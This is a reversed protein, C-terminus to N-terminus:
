AGTARLALRLDTIPSAGLITSLSGTGVTSGDPLVITANITLPSGQGAQSALQVPPLMAQEISVPVPKTPPVQPITTFEIPEATAQGADKLKEALDEARKAQELPIRELVDRAAAKQEESTAQSALVRQARALERAEERRAKRDEIAALQADIAARRQRDHEETIQEELDRIQKLLQLREVEPLDGAALRERYVALREENTLLDDQADQLREAAREAEAAAREAERQAKAEAAAEAKAASAGSAAAKKSAQASKKAGAAAAKAAEEALKARARQQDNLAREGAAMGGPATARAGLNREGARYDEMAAQRVQDYANALALQAAVLEYTVGIQAAYKQATAVSVDGAAIMKAVVADLKAQLEDKAQTQLRTQAEELVAAETEVRLAEAAETAAQTAAQTASTYGLTAFEATAAANAELRHAAEREYIRETLIQAATATEAYVGQGAYYAAIENRVADENAQSGEAAALLHPLLAQLAAGREGTATTVLTEITSLEDLHTLFDTLAVTAPELGAALGTGLTTKLTSFATGLREYSKATTDNAAAVFAATYGQEDLLQLLGQLRQQASVGEGALAAVAKRDLEFREALSLAAEAGSASLFERLALTAGEVGQAPDAASLRRVADSITDIAAGTRNSLNVFSGLAGLNEELTGGYTQQQHQAKALIDNYRDTSGSLARVRAETVELANAATVAESAFGVVAQAGFAVGFAGAMSSALGTVSRLSSGLGGTAQTLERTAAASGRLTSGLNAVGGARVSATARDLNSVSRIVKDIEDSADDKGRIIINAVSPM